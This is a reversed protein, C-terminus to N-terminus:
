NQDFFLGGNRGPRREMQAAEVAASKFYTSIRQQKARNHTQQDKYDMTARRKNRAQRSSTPRSAKSTPINPMGVEQKVKPTSANQPPPVSESVNESGDNQTLSDEASTLLSKLQAERKKFKKREVELKKNQRAQLGLELSIQENKEVLKSFKSDLDNNKMELAAIIGKLEDCEPNEEELEAVRSELKRYQDKLANFDKDWDENELKLEEYEKEVQDKENQLDDKEIELDEFQQEMKRLRKKLDDNEKKLEDKESKVKEYVDNVTDSYLNRLDSIIKELCHQSM